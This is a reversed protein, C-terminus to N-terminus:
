NGIIVLKQDGWSNAMLMKKKKVDPKGSHGFHGQGLCLPKAKPLTTASKYAKCAKNFEEKLIEMKNDWAEMVRPKWNEDVVVCLQKHLDAEVHNNYVYAWMEAHTILAQKAM